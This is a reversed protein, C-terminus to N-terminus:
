GLWREAANTDRRRGFCVVRPEISDRDGGGQLSFGSAIWTLGDPAHRRSAIYDGWKGDAPGDTGDVTAQLEWSPSMDDLVGVVHGPHLPGGGRFLSIGVHGRDNACADPYAYAWEESWIDPEDLVRLTEEDIRVARVFPLPREDDPGATWLFGIIGAGTWAGTIREDCRGLWNRGDPGAARYPSPNWRTISVDLEAVQADDEPWVFLRLRDLAVHAALYMTGRAGLTARLSFEPSAFLDYAPGDGAALDDLSLRLVACRQFVDDADFVNTVVYLFDNSLAAHNYDFWDNQWTPDVEAPRFDWYIWDNPDTAAGRRVALRLTNTADRVSYQLLWIELDRSPDYLVTQDCCFGGDAAPFFTFPDVMSWSQGHDSSEAAYWNGTLLIRDGSNCHSTEGVTSTRGGTQPDTLGVNSFLVLDSAAM